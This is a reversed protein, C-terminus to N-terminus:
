GKAQSIGKYKSRASKTMKRCCRNNHAITAIKLKEKPNNLGEGDKHHVVKGAPANMIVRHMYIIQRNQLRVAYCRKDEKEHLQWNEEALKQYDEEDVIAYRNKALKIRRFAIGYYKKRWRLLFRAFIYEIFLPIPISITIKTM